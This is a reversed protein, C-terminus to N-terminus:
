YRFGLRALLAFGLGFACLVLCATQVMILNPYPNLLLQAYADLAWAQPTIRSIQKMAEPMLERPM